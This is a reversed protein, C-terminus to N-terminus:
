RGHEKGYRHRGKWVMDRMNDQHTGMFLHSPNVCIRNDCHHCICLGPPIEDNALEYSIRHALREKGGFLMGGYGGGSKIGTWIWCATPGGSKDVKSWFKKLEKPTYEYM